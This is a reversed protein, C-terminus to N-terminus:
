TLLKNCQLTHTIAHDKELVYEVYLGKDHVLSLQSSKKSMVEQTNLGVLEQDSAFPNEAWCDLVFPLSHAEKHYATSSRPADLIAELEEVCM